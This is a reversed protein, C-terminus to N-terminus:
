ESNRREKSIQVVAWFGVGTVAIAALAVILALVATDAELLRLAINALSEMEFIRVFKKM